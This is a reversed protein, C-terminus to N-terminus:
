KVSVLVKAEFSLQRQGNLSREFSVQFLWDKQHKTNTVNNLKCPACREAAAPIIKGCQGAKTLCKKLNKEVRKETGARSARRRQERLPEM